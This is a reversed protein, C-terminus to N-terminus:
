IQLKIVNSYSNRQEPYTTRPVTYTTRMIKSTSGYGLWGSGLKTSFNNSCSVVTWVTLVAQVVTCVTIVAQVTTCATTYALTWHIIGYFKICIDKDLIFNNVNQKECLRFIWSPPSPWRPNESQTFKAMGAHQCRPIQTIYWIQILYRNNDSFDVCKHKQSKNSSTM